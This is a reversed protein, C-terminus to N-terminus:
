VKVLEYVANAAIKYTDCRLTKHISIYEGLLDEESSKKLMAKIDSYLNEVTCEQQLYEPVLKKKALINPLAAYPIKVMARLVLYTVWSVKYAVVMPKKYLMAELTATGSAILIADAAQMVDGAQNIFITINLDKAIEQKISKFLEANKKNNAAYILKLNPNDNVCRRATQLFVSALQKIENRRSGPLLALVKETKDISLRERAEKINPELQISNALPHGIYQHNVKHKVYFESEFPFLTLMLDVSAKIAKIRGQRWAWVSPSVFHVTKIGAAKLEKELWLNFEPADVGIFVDPPNALFYNLIKKREVWLEKYRGLVETIGMVSLREMPYLVDMGEGALGEGGIGLLKIDPSQKKLEKILSAGLNDGSIEGAVMGITLM